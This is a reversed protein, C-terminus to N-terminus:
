ERSTRKLAQWIIYGGVVVVVVTLAGFFAIGVKAAILLFDM